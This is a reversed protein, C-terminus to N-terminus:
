IKMSSTMMLRNRIRLNGNLVNADAVVHAEVVDTVAKLIQSKTKGIM